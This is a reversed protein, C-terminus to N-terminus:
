AATQSFAGDHFLPQNGFSVAVMSAASPTRAPTPPVAMQMATSGYMTPTAVMPVAVVVPGVVAPGIQDQSEAPMAMVVMMTTAPVLCCLGFGLPRPSESGLGKKRRPRLDSTHLFPGPAAFGPVKRTVGAPRLKPLGYSVRPVLGSCPANPLSWADSALRKIERSRQTCDNSHRAESCQAQARGLEARNTSPGSPFVGRSACDYTRHHSGM